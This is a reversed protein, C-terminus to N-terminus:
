KTAGADAKAVIREAADSMMDQITTDRNIALLRLRRHTDPPFKITM